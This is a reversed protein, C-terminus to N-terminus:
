RRNRAELDVFVLDVLSYAAVRDQNRREIRNDAVLQARCDGLFGICLTTRQLFNGPFHRVQRVLLKISQEIGHGKGLATDLVLHAYSGCFKLVPKRACALRDIREIDRDLSSICLGEEITAM